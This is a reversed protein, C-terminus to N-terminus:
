YLCEEQQSDGTGDNRCPGDRRAGGVAEGDTAPVDTRLASHGEGHARETRESVAVHAGTPARAYEKAM